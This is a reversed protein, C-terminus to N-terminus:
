IQAAHLLQQQQHYAPCVFPSVAALQRSELKRLSTVMKLLASGAKDYLQPPFRTPTAVAEPPFQTDDVRYLRFRSFALETPPCM